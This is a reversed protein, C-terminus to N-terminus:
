VQKGKINVMEQYLNDLKAIVVKVDYKDEAEHLNNESIQEMLKQNEILKFIRDSIEEPTPPISKIVLGQKGDEFVDILGGVHTGIFPLGAAMAECFINPFGETFSPLIVMDSDRFYNIKEAGSKFGVCKVNEELKMHSIRKNLNIFERGQGVYILKTEPYKLIILQFADLLQYVGKLKEIRSCFLLIYPPDFIKNKSKYKESEVMMTTVIIKNSDIGLAILENKFSSALVLIRDPMEFIKLFFRSLVDEKRLHKSLNKDWGGVCFLVSFGNKKAYRTFIYDRVIAVWALSPNIHIIDPNFKKLKEKFKLLQILILIPYFIKIFKSSDGQVFHRILYKDSPYNDLILRVYNSVGGKDELSVSCLLIRIKNKM